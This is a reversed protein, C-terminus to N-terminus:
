FANNKNKQSCLYKLRQEWNNKPYNIKLYDLNNNIAEYEAQLRIDQRITGNNGRHCESCLPVTIENIQKKYILPHHAEVGIKGCHLCKNGMKERQTTSIARM